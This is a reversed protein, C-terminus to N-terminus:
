KGQTKIVIKNITEDMDIILGLTEADYGIFLYTYSCVIVGKKMCYPKIRQKRTVTRKWECVGRM